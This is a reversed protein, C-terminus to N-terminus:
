LQMERFGVDGLGETRSSVRSFSRAALLGHIKRQAREGTEKGPALGYFKCDCWSLKTERPKIRAFLVASTINSIGPDRPALQSEGGLEIAPWRNGGWHAQARAARHINTRRNEQRWALKTERV